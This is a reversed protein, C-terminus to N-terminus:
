PLDGRLAQRLMAGRLSEGLQALESVTEHARKRAAPNRQKLMPMVVQEFFGAEREAAVKYMRLHRAEVGFRLFGAALRGVVLADEDYITEKGMARGAIIGFRELDAITREHLGCAAALEERTMSVGSPGTDFTVRGRAGREGMEGRRAVEVLDSESTEVVATAASPEGSGGVPAETPALPEMDRGILDVPVGTRDSEELREKIVKLPLFNDRQQHLIWGLRVIDNEYFRRYGSPTREPDLLGQSELFRIKSITVDPFEQQLLSLVEGISQHSRDHDTM